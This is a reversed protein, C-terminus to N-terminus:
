SKKTRQFFDKAFSEWDYDPNSSFEEFTRRLPSNMPDILHLDSNEIGRRDSLITHTVGDKENWDFEISMGDNFEKKLLREAM